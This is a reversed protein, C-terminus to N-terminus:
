LVISGDKVAEFFRSETVTVTTSGFYDAVKGEASVSTEQISELNMMGFVSFAEMHVLRKAPEFFYRDNALEIVLDERLRKREQILLRAAGLGERLTRSQDQSLPCQSELCTGEFRILCVGRWGLAHHTFLDACISPISVDVECVSPLASLDRCVHKKAKRSGFSPSAVVNRLPRYQLLKLSARSSRLLNDVGALSISSSANIQISDLNVATRAIMSLDDDTIM